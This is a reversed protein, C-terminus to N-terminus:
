ARRHRFTGRSEAPLEEVVDGRKVALRRKVSATRATRNRADRRFRAGDLYGRLRFRGDTFGDDLHAGGSGFIRLRLFFALLAPWSQLGVAFGAYALAFLVAGAAFVRRPGSRDIWHGGGLAIVSASVNHGTYLLIAVTTAAAATRGHHHLLDTARLILLTTACNGVEFLAIPLLPRALGARRLGGLELSFRRRIPDRLRRAEAAAVTIAVAAFVGPIAAFYIAPRIGVWAVLGAALLPGAVAGLNDGAREVGFARGYAEPPALAALM